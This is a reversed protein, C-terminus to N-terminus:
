SATDVVDLFMISIDVERRVFNPAEPNEAIM